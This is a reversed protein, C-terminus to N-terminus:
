FCRMAHSPLSVLVVFLLGHILVRACNAVATALAAGGAMFVRARVHDLM